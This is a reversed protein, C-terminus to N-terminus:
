ESDKGSRKGTCPTCMILKAIEKVPNEFNIIQMGQINLIGGSPCARPIGVSEFNGIDSM